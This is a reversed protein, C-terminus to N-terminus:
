KPLLFRNYILTTNDPHMLGSTVSFQTGAGGYVRAGDSYVYAGLTSSLSTSPNVSFGINSGGTWSATASSGAYNGATNCPSSSIYGFGMRSLPMRAMLAGTSPFGMTITQALATVVTGTTTYWGIDHSSTGSILGSLVLNVGDFIINSGPGAVFATTIIATTTTGGIVLKFVTGVNTSIYLNGAYDACMGGVTQGSATAVVVTNTITFTAPAIQYVSNNVITTRPGAWVNTGDWFLADAGQALALTTVADNNTTDLRTIGTPSSAYIYRGDFVIDHHDVASVGAIATATAALGATTGDLKCIGTAHTIYFTTGTFICSRIYGPITSTSAGSAYGSLPAGVQVMTAANGCHTHGLVWHETATGTSSYNFSTDVPLSVRNYPAGINYSAKLGYVRGHIESTGYTPRMSHVIKKTTDWAYTTLPVLTQGDINTMTGLRIYPTQWGNTVAAVGTNGARNRPFSAYQATTTGTMVAGSHMWVFCPYGAAATDEPAERAVEFVGSWVSPNNRIFTQLVCWYPTVMLIVDCGSLHIGHWGARNFTWVENTGVHTTANWSEYCTTTIKLAGPDIFFGIYKYTSGDNNLARYVRRYQNTVDYQAWGGAVIANDMATILGAVSTEGNLTIQTTNTGVNTVTVTM